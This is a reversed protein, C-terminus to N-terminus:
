ADADPVQVPIGSFAFGCLTFHCPRMTPDRNLTYCQAAAANRYPTHFVVGTKDTWYHGDLCWIGYIVSDDPAVVPGDQAGEHTAAHILSRVALSKNNDFREALSTLLRDTESDFRLGRRIDKPVSPKNVM